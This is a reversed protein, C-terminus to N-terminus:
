ECPAPLAPFAHLPEPEVFSLSAWVSVKGIEMELSSKRWKRLLPVMPKRLTVGSAICHATYAAFACVYWATSVAFFMGAILAVLVRYVCRSSSARMMCHLM